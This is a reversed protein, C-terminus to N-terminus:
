FLIESIRMNEFLDIQIREFDSQAEFHIESYGKLFKDSPKVSIKLHYYNVDYCSREDSLFGRLSDKRGFDQSFSFLSQFLLLFIINKKM